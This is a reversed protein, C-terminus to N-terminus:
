SGDTGDGIPTPTLDLRGELLRQPSYGYFPEDPSAGSLAKAAAGPAQWSWEHGPEVPLPLTWGRPDKLVPRTIFTLALQRMARLYHEPPLKLAVTPLLPTTVHLAARPDVLATVTLPPGNLTPPLTEHSPRTVGNAGDEPATPASVTTYPTNSATEPLFAVLGDEINTLDGLRLPITLRDLGAATDAQRAAYDTWGNHVARALADTPSTNAQSVPLLGGATSVGLVCRVVALPRGTLVASSVDQAATAPNIFRDSREIADMLDILFGAPRDHIFWMLAAINPNVHEPAGPLGVDSALDQGGPDTLNDGAGTRYVNDDHELGFSGIVSGDADHFRLALDLHDAVIWGCVPSTAPHENTTVVEGTNGSTGDNHAASLWHADIRSPALVRPPLYARKANVSDGAAPSFAVATRVELAGTDTRSKTTLTIRRGFVDIVKLDEIELFGARLPGFNYEALLGTSIPSLTNFGTDYWTDGPNATAGAAIANTLVDFKVLNEVPIQPIPTRLTQALNFGGLAQSMVRRGAFDDRASRLGDDTTDTTDTSLDTLYRDIQRTLGVMPKKSLVVAGSYAVPAGTTFAAPVPYTLDGAAGDPVFREVLTGPSYRGDVGRALPDLMIHWTLWVPLFPDEGRPSSAPLSAQANWGVADPALAHGGSNTFAISLPSPSRVSAVPNATRVYGPAHVTAYLGGDPAGQGGQCGTIAVAPAATAAAIEPAYLPDLLAAEALLMACTRAAPMAAPPEPLGPLSAGDVSRDGSGGSLVLKDILQTDTRVAISTTPGNRRAPEVRSGEMVLVPDTPMAFPRAPVADLRWQAEATRLASAVADFAVVVQAAKSTKASSTSVGTCENSADVAYHLLGVAADAALVAHMEGGTTTALFASLSATDVVPDGQAVFQKVYILWDMFLQGRITALRERDQDYVRQARNLAALREALCLPLTPERTTDAGDTSAPQVIWTHGGDVQAFARTHLAEDLAPLSNGDAELEHLLGLQLANLSAEYDDFEDREGRLAALDGRILASVAEVTTNGLALNVEDSRDVVGEPTALFSTQACDWVIDHIGGSCLTESPADLTVITKDAAQTYTIAAADFDWGFSHAAMSVCADAPTETVTVREAACHAVYADYGATVTAAFGTLPDDHPALWGTVNYTFRFSIPSASEPVQWVEPVDALTDWFGFVSNCDPYYGAFAPGVFGISTLRHAAGDGATYAGLYDTPRETAPDWAEASVVRGMYMYPVDDPSTLPVTVAPRPRGGDAPPLTASVYDSEVVWSAHSLAGHSGTKEDFARLSRVVLWRSPATPFEIAGTDPNRVGRKFYEPLEWHLHIGAGLRDSPPDDSQLPRWVTDGTGAETASDTHPLLDFAATRGAFGGTVNSEDTTSVRMATVNLPVIAKM